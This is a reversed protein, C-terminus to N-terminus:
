KNIFWITYEWYTVNLYKDLKSKRSIDTELSIAHLFNISDLPVRSCDSLLTQGSRYTGVTLNLDASTDTHPQVEDGRGGTYICRRVTLTVCSATNNLVLPLTRDGDGTAKVQQRWDQASTRWKGRVRRQIRIPGATGRPRSFSLKQHFGM